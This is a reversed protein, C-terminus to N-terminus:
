LRAYSIGGHSQINACDYLTIKHCVTEFTLNKLECFGLAEANKVMQKNWFGSDYYKKVQNFKKSM